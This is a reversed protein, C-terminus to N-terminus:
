GKQLKLNNIYLRVLPGYCLTPAEIGLM